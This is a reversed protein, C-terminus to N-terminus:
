FYAKINKSVVKESGLGIGVGIHYSDNVGLPSNIFIQYDGTGQLRGLNYILYEGQKQYNITGRRYEFYESSNWIQFELSNLFTRFQYSEYRIEPDKIEFVLKIESPKDIHIRDRLITPSESFDPSFYNLRKEFGPYYARNVMITFLAISGLFLLPIFIILLVNIQKKM